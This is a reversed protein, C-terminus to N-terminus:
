RPLKSKTLQPSAVSAFHACAISSRAHEEGFETSQPMPACGTMWDNAPVPSPSNIPRQQNARTRLQADAEDATVQNVSPWLNDESSNTRVVYLFYVNDGAAQM